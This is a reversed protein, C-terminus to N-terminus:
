VELRGHRMGLEARHHGHAANPCRAYRRAVTHLRATDRPRAVAVLGASRAAGVCVARSGPRSNQLDPESFRNM